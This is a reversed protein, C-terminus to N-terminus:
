NLQEGGRREEVRGRADAAAPSQLRLEKRPLAHRHRDPYGKRRKGTRDLETGLCHQRLQLM